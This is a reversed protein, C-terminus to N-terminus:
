GGLYQPLSALLTKLSQDDVELKVQVDTKEVAINVNKLTVGFLALWKALSAAQEVGKKAEQASAEDPYTGSAAVEVGSEKFNMLVRIAKVKQALPSPIQRLVEQPAPNSAFDGAVAASAGPTELTSIMWPLIDRKVRKDKIRELVRRIGSETGVVVREKSLVTFGINSVTYVDRGAYQSTVLPAGMKTPTNSAAVQRIKAEDFRGVVIAAVDIGQYSYSGWTVRDVDRAADFNAEKGIPVYKEVVKALESGFTKSGFFARADVTGVAIANGPLLALADDMSPEKDVSKAGDGDKPGCGLFLAVFLFLFLVRARM